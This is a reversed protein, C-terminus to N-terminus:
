YSLAAQRLMDLSDKDDASIEHLRRFSNRLVDMNKRNRNSVHVVPIIGSKMSRKAANFGRIQSEIPVSSAPDFIYVLNRCKMKKLEALVNDNGHMFAEPASVVQIKKTGKNAYGIDINEYPHARVNDSIHGLVAKRHSANVGTVVVSPLTYADHLVNRSMMFFRYIFVAGSAFVIFFVSDAVSISHEFLM